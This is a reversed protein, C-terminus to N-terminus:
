LPLVSLHCLTHYGNRGGLALVRCRRQGALFFPLDCCVGADACVVLFLLAAIFRLHVLSFGQRLSNENRAILTLISLYFLYDSRKELYSFTRIIKMHIIVCNKIRTALPQLTANFHLRFNPHLWNGRNWKHTFPHHCLFWSCM